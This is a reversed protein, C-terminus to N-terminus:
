RRRSILWGFGFAAAAVIALTAGKNDEAREYVARGRETVERGYYRGREVTEDRLARGRHSVDDRLSRGRRAADEAFDRGDRELREARNQVRGYASQAVGAVQEYAGEVQPRARGTVAGLASRGRGRINRIGGEIQDRNMSVDKQLM